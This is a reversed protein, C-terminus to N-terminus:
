GVRLPSLVRLLKGKNLLFYSFSFFRNFWIERRLLSVSVHGFIKCSDCYIRLCLPGRTYLVFLLKLVVKTVKGEGLLNKETDVGKENWSSM